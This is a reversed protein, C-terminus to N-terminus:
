ANNDESKKKLDDLYKILLDINIITFDGEDNMLSIESKIIKYYKDGITITVIENDNKRSRNIFKLLNEKFKDYLFGGAISSLIFNIILYTDILGPNLVSKEINYYDGHFHNTLDSFEHESINLSTEIKIM